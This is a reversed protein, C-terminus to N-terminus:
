INVYFIVVRHYYMCRNIYAQFANVAREQQPEQNNIDADPPSVHLPVYDNLEPVNDVLIVGQKVSTLFDHLKKGVSESGNENCTIIRTVQLILISYLCYINNIRKLILNLEPLKM